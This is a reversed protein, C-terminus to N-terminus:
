RDIDEELYVHRFLSEVFFDGARRGKTPFVRVKGALGQVVLAHQRFIGEASVGFRLLKEVELFRRLLLRM